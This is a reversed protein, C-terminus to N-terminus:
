RLSDRLRYFLMGLTLLPTRLPGGPFIVPKIGAMVDFRELRGAIAEAMLRGYMASLVVGQGSFGHAFFTAPGLRGIHPMREVTIGIHGGWAHDLRVDGLQPFSELMRPRMYAGLDRPTWGSYTARGGYLMRGDASRRFYEPIFAWTCVAENGPILGAARNQGLQETAVIYSGVPMIRNALYPVLRGLYANGALVLHKARVSGGATRVVPEAADIDAFTVASREFIRGGAVEVARGLGRAYKLPHLHGALPEHLAGVFRDSAVRGATAAKDLVQCGSYGYRDLTEAYSQMEGRAREKLAVHLYGWQLDCDIGYRQLRDVLLARGDMAVEWATRAVDRGAKGEIWDMDKSFATCIQGGNRGSAGFGVQEAELVVTSFGKEALDLAASLGTYGAGVVCIDAEIDGELAPRPAADSLSAIYYNPERM